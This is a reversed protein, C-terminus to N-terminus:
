GRALRGAGPRGPLGGPRRPLRAGPRLRGREGDARVRGGLRALDAAAAPGAPRGGPAEAPPGTRRGNAAGKLEQERELREIREALDWLEVAKVSYDLISCAARIRANAGAQPDTLVDQLVQVADGSASQLRGIAAELLARRAARYEERFAPERLWRQLTSESIGARQAAEAHSSSSLLAALAREQHGDLKSGGANM